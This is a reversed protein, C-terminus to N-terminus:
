FPPRFLGACHEFLLLVFFSCAFPGSFGSLITLDYSRKAHEGHKKIPRAHALPLPFDLGKILRHMDRAVHRQKKKKIEEGETETQHCNSQCKSQVTLQEIRDREVQTTPTQVHIELLFAPLCAPM